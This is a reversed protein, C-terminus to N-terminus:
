EVLASPLPPSWARGDRRETTRRGRRRLGLLRGLLLKRYRAQRWSPVPTSAGSKRATTSASSPPDDVLRRHRVDAVLEVVEPPVAAARGAVAGVARVQDDGAEARRPDVDHVDRGVRAPRPDLLHDLRLLDDRPRAVRARVGHVAHGALVDDDRHEAVGVPVAGAAEGHEVRLRELDLAAPLVAALLRREVVVEPVLRALVHEDGRLEALRVRVLLAEVELVDGGAAVPAADVEPVELPPREFVRDVEALRPEDRELDAPEVVGLGLLAEDAGRERARHPAEVALVPTPAGLLHDRDLADLLLAPGERHRPRM